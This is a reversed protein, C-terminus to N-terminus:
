GHGRRGGRQDIRAQSGLHREYEEPTDIDALIGPDDVPVHLTGKRHRRVVARAGEPLDPTELEQFLTRSFLVPHGTTDGVTPVALLPRSRHFARLIEGITESRVMPHDVPHLLLGLLAPDSTAQLHALAVRISSIPGEEPDFNKVVRAGLRRAEAATPDQLHRVVVVVPACGARTLAGCVRSLFTGDGIKMLAKPSGMRASRGAAPVVGAVASGSM